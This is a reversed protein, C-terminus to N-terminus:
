HLANETAEVRLRFTAAFRGGPEVVPLDEHSRLADAPATMPELSIYDHTSPAYIQAYRFNELFDVSVRRGNGTISMTAGPSVFAFGHDFDLDALRDDYPPLHTREGVPLLLEDLIIGDMAPLTLEWQARRIGPIGFYPHFGFSVPVRGGANALVATEITLGLGDLTATMEVEHEFPFVQLLEPRNWKLRSRLRRDTVEEVQWALKPWPVGHIITDNWDKMIWPSAKDLEVREGDFEYSTGRIRNAYPYNLPIGISMGTALAEDMEDLRRLIEQGRHKLSTCIMGQEPRFVALLEGAALTHTRVSQAQPTASVAGTQPTEHTTM